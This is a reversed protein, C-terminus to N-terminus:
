KGNTKQKGMLETIQEPFTKASPELIDGEFEDSHRRKFDEIDFATDKLKKLFAGTFDIILAKEKPEFEKTYDEAFKKVNM